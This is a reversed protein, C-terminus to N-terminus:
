HEIKKECIDLEKDEETDLEKGEEKDLEKDELETDVEQETLITM